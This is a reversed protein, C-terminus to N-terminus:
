PLHPHTSSHPKTKALRFDQIKEFEFGVRGDGDNDKHGSPAGCRLWPDESGQFNPKTLEPSPQKTKTLNM